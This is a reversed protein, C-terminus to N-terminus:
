RAVRVSGAKPPDYTLSYKANNVGLARILMDPDFTKFLRGDKEFGGDTITFRRSKRPSWGLDLGDIALPWEGTITLTGLKM